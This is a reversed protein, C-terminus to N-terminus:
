GPPQGQQEWYVWALPLLRSSCRESRNKHQKNISDRYTFPTQDSKQYNLTTERCSMVTIFVIFCGGAPTLSTMSAIQIKFPMLGSLIGSGEPEPLIFSAPVFVMSRSDRPHLHYGTSNREFGEPWTICFCYKSIVTSKVTTHATIKEWKNTVRQHPPFIPPLM